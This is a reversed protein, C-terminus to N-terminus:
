VCHECIYEKKAAEIYPLNSLNTCRLHYWRICNDCGINKEEEDEIDSILEDECKSCKRKPKKPKKISKLKAQREALKKRRILKNEEIKAEREAKLSVRMKRRTEIDRAKKSKQEEKLALNIRWKESSIAMPFKLTDSHKKHSEPKSEPFKLHKDFPDILQIAVLPSHKTRKSPSCILDSQELINERESEDYYRLDGNLTIKESQLQDSNNSVEDCISILNFNTQDQIRKKVIKATKSISEGDTSEQM